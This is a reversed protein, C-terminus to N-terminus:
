RRREWPQASAVAGLFADMVDVLLAHMRVAADARVVAGEDQMVANNPQREAWWAGLGGSTFLAAWIDADGIHWEIAHRSIWEHAAARNRGGEPRGSRGAATALAWRLTGPREAGDGRVPRERIFAIDGMSGYNAGPVAGPPEIRDTSRKLPLAILVGAWDFPPAFGFAYRYRGTTGVRRYIAKSDPAPMQEGLVAAALQAYGDALAADQVSLARTRLQALVHLRQEGTQTVTPGFGFQAGRAAHRPCRADGTIADLDWGEGAAAALAQAQDPGRFAGVNSRDGPGHGADDCRITIQYHQDIIPM